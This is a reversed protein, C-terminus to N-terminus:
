RWQGFVDVFCVGEQIEESGSSCRDKLDLIVIRDNLTDSVYLRDDDVVMNTPGDFNSQGDLDSLKFTFEFIGDIDFVSISDGVSDSVIFETEQVCIRFRSGLLRTLIIM